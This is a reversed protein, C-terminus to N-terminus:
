ARGQRNKFTSIFRTLEQPNSFRDFNFLAEADEATVEEIQLLAQPVSLNKSSAIALVKEAIERGFVAAALSILSAASELHASSEDHKVRIGSVCKEVFKNCGRGIIELIELLQFFVWGNSSGIDIDEEVFSFAALQDIGVTQHMVQLMLEPMSPNIKGPMITSGPAIAPLSLESIGCRPGSSYIYFDNGLRALNLAILRLVSSLRIFRDDGELAEVYSSGLVPDDDQPVSHLPLGTVKRLNNVALANFGPASHTFSDIPTLGLNVGLFLDQVRQLEDASRKLRIYMAGFVAGWSVPLSEQLHSRAIHMENRFEVAKNRLTQLLNDVGSRTLNIARYVVLNQATNFVDEYGQGANIKEELVGSKTALLRNFAQNYALGNIHLTGTTLESRYPNEIIEECAKIIAEADSPDLIGLSANAAASAKKIEAYATILQPYDRFEKIERTSTLMLIEPPPKIGGGAKFKM